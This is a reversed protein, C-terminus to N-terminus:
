QALIAKGGPRMPKEPHIDDPLGALMVRRLDTPQFGPLLRAFKDGSLSHPLDWLYRMEGLDRALEWFPALLRMMWWAFRTLRLPRGTAESLAAHLDSVSFSHGPFPVDEFTALRERRTALMVAARAWDPVYAYATPVQPNGPAAVKGKVIERLLFATMIDGNHEPDIVNGARLIITRVGADRYAAEM